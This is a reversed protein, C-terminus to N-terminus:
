EWYLSIIINTWDVTVTLGDFRWIVGPHCASVLKMVKLQLCDVKSFDALDLFGALFKALQNQSSKDAIALHQVQQLRASIQFIPLSLYGLVWGFGFNMLRM